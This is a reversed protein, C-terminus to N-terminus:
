RGSHWPGNAARRNPRHAALSSKRGFRNPIIGAPTVPVMCMIVIRAISRDKGNRFASGVLITPNKIKRVVCEELDFLQNVVSYVRIMADPM